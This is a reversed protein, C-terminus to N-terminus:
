QITRLSKLYFDSTILITLVSHYLYIESRVIRPYGMFAMFPKNGIPDKSYFLNACLINYIVPNIGAVM